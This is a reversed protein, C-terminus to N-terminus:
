NIGFETLTKLFNGSVSYQDNALGRGSRQNSYTRDGVVHWFVVSQEQGQKKFVRYEAPHANTAFARDLDIQHERRTPTWGNAVWCVDPTHEHAQKIPASGPKWYAVYLILQTNGRTYIRSVYDDFDLIEDVRAIMEETEALPLDKATWGPMEPNILEALPRNISPEPQPRIADFIQMGIAFLLGLIPISLFVIRM